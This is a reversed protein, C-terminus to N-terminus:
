RDIQKHLWNSILTLFEAKCIDNQLEHYGENILKLEVLDSQAAFEESGKHSTIRDGTGHVVLMPVELTKANQIAWNATELFVLAYNASIKSHVLKDNVYKKVEASDRSIHSVDLENGLTISPAIKQVIKGLSIKWKPPEFALRLFPSSVVVALLSHKKRLTYNIVLNGGMSHGYLFIPKDPALAAAKEIIIALVDLLHEYGPNHGRKGSTKGHGFNDYALVNFDQAVFAEAIHHYRGSHGGMGHVIVLTAKPAKAKWFVGHFNTKYVQFKFTEPAM